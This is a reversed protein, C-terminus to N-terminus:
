SHQGSRRATLAAVGFALLALMGPEPVGAAIPVGVETEYGWAFADLDHGTRVVGIWGFHDGVGSTDGANFRVGLYTELGEPLESGFGDYMVYGIGDTADATPILEGANFGLVFVGFDGGVHITDGPDGAGVQSGPGTNTHYFVGPGNPPLSGQDAASLTINLFLNPGQNEDTWEDGWEHHGPGPLNDFRVPSAQALGGGVAWIAIALAIMGRSYQKSM